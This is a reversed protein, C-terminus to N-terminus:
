AHFKSFVEEAATIGSGLDFKYNLDKLILELASIVTLIDMRDAYGLHAIRFIKGKLHDQGEAVTINFDKQFKDIILNANIGQPAKSATLASSPNKSFVELNLATIGQRTAEALIKHRKWMNEIGEEKIMTLANGLAFILSVSPTYPTQNKALMDKYALLNFYYKPSTSKKVYEWARSSLTIFALGPPLMLGKQSGAVVCDIGWEETKLEDACLGSIADVVLLTDSNRTIEAISKVDTLTATSTECLTVFVAKINPTKKLESAIIDAQPAYGWEIDLPIVEINYSSAIEAWREGFKGGRIVLAKDNPSLLNAVAAEMGGTGSSALVFVPSSTCFVYKLDEKIRGFLEEYARTRHHIIPEGAALSVHPPISTPGPSFIRYKNLM